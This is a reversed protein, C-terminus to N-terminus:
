DHLIGDELAVALNRHSGIIQPSHTAILFQRDGLKAIECLDDIFKRQWDVHLSIEPEDILFFTKESTRFILEYFLVIQHQEGSSLLTLPLNENSPSGNTHICFGHEKDISLKKSKFKTNVIRLLIEIKEQLDDFLVLKKEIDDLYLFLAKRQNPQIEGKPLSNKQQQNILGADVLKQIKQEVKKYQNRIDQDSIRKEKFLPTNKSLLRQPFTSDYKQSMAVQEAMKKSILEKIERSYIQIVNSPPKVDTHFRNSLLNDVKLLRQTKIFHVKISSIFHSIEDPLNEKSYGSFLDQQIDNSQQQRSFINPTWTSLHSEPFYFSLPNYPNKGKKGLTHTIEGIKSKLKLTIQNKKAEKEVILTEDNKEIKVADFNIKILESFNKNFIASILHLCTTKGCGNPGHIFTIGGKKLEIIHQPIVGFLNTIEIKKIENM